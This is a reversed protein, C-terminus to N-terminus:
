GLSGASTDSGTGTDCQVPTGAGERMRVGGGFFLDFIDMPSGFGSSGGRNGLGGEKMAREGGRDYLARKHSDSLVEYAQSIQKFREGESPNKDPHYRLALRRYARKIEDLVLYSNTSKSV